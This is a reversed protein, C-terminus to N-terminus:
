WGIIKLFQLTSTRKLPSFPPPPSQWQVSPTSNVGGEELRWLTSTVDGIVDDHVIEPTLDFLPVLSLAAASLSPLPPPPSSCPVPSAASLPSSILPLCRPEARSPWLVAQQCCSILQQSITSPGTCSSCFSATVKMRILKEIRPFWIIKM